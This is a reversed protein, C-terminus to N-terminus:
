EKLGVLMMQRGTYGKDARFSYFMDNNCITCIPSIQINEPKVGADGIQIELIKALDVNKEDKKGVDIIVGDIDKYEDFWGLDCNSFEFCCKRAGPGICAIIDEANCGFNDVMMRVAKPTIKNVVGKWGAHVNGIVKKGPDFLIILSCDASVTRLVVDKECTILGDCSESIDPKFIGSGRDKQTVIQVIDGHTQLACVIDHVDVGLEKCLLAYKEAVDGEADSTFASVLDAATGQGIGGLRTTFAHALIDEYELLRRFQLYEVDNVKGHIMIEDSLDRM